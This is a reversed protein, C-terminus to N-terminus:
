ACSETFSPSHLLWASAWHGTAPVSLEPSKALVRQPIARGRRGRLRKRQTQGAESALYFRIPMLLTKM